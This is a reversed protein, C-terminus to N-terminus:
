FCNMEQSFIATLTQQSIDLPGTKNGPKMYDGATIYGVLAKEM